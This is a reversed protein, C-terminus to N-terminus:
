FTRSLKDRSTRNQVDQEAGHREGPLVVLLEGGLMEYCRDEVWIRKCGSQLLLFEVEEPHSEMPMPWLANRIQMKGVEPVEPLDTYEITQWPKDNM